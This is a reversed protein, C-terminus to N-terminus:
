RDIRSEVRDMFFHWALQAISTCSYRFAVERFSEAQQFYLESMDTKVYVHDSVLKRLMIRDFTFGIAYRMIKEDVVYFTGRTVFDGRYYAQACIANESRNIYIKLGPMLKPDATDSAQEEFLTAIADFEQRFYTEVEEESFGGLDFENSVHPSKKSHEVQLIRRIADVAATLPQDTNAWEIVPKGDAPLAVFDGLKAGGGVPLNKWACPRVILTVVKAQGAAAREFARVMEKEYCYDSAIFDASVLLVIVDSAALQASISSDLHENPLLKRDHWAEILGERRLVAFHKIFEDKLAEDAHSYSIFAQPMNVGLFGV